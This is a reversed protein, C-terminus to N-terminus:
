WVNTPTGAEALEREIRRLVAEHEDLLQQTVAIVSGEASERLPAVAMAPLTPPAMDAVVQNIKAIAHKLDVQFWEQGGLPRGGDVGARRYVALLAHVAQEARGCDTTAVEFVCRYDAVGFEREMKAAVWNAEAVREAVSRTTLGIKVCGPLLPERVLVYLTGSVGFYQEPDYAAPRATPPVILGFNNAALAILARAVLAAPDYAARQRGAASM